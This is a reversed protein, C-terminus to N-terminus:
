AQRVWHLLEPLTPRKGYMLIGVRFVRAALWTMGIVSGAMLVVSLGLQWAAPPHATLRMIMLVPTFFPILSLVTSMTSDPDRVIAMMLLMPMAVLMTVPWQMQQAEQESTAIAGIAAYLAAYLLFGLVFYLALFVITAAPVQSAEAIAPYTTRLYTAAALAIVAWVAYQTLGVAGIGLVKGLMIQFPRATSLLIETIRTNKDELVSRQVSVGYLLITFYLLMGFGITTVFDSEFGGERTGRESVKFIKISARQTISDTAAAPIGREELKQIMMSRSVAAKLREQETLDGMSAAYLRARGNVLLDPELWLLGDINGTVIRAEAERQIEERGEPSAPPPVFELQHRPQGTPLTDALASELAPGLFRTEDVVLLRVPKGSDRNVLWIPLAWTAILFVPVLLTSALFSRKRVRDLYERKFITTAGSM